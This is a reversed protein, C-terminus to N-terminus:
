GQEATAVLKVLETLTVIGLVRGESAVVVAGKSKREEIREVAESVPADPTVTPPRLRMVDDVLLHDIREKRYREPVIEHFAFFADAVEDVTIFGVLRDREDVVPMFLLNYRLLLQRAHLLKNSTRLVEPVTTMVDVVKVSRYDKALRALELRTVLGVVEDGSVVPYSGVNDEIMMRAVSRIPDAPSVTKPSWTMFSAVRLRSSILSRTRLTALKVMIDKKTMIGALKGEELVVVRDMDYRKMVRVAHHLTEDKEVVPFDRLMISEVPADSM